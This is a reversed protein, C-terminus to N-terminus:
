INWLSVKYVTFFIYILCPQFKYYVSEVNHILDSSHWQMDRPWWQSTSYLFVLSVKWTDSCAIHVTSLISSTKSLWCLVKQMSAYFSYQLTILTIRSRQLIKGCLVFNDKSNSQLQEDCFAPFEMRPCVMCALHFAYQSAIDCDYATVQILVNRCREFPQDHNFHAIQIATLDEAFFLVCGMGLM